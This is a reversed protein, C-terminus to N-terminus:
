THVIHIYVHIYIYIYIYVYEELDLRQFSAASSTSRPSGSSLAPRDYEPGEQGGAACLSHLIIIYLSIMHLIM